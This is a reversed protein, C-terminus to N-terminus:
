RWRPTSWATTWTGRSAQGHKGCLPKDCTTRENIQYDCLWQGPKRCAHCRPLSQRGRSCAIGFGGPTKIPTCPM